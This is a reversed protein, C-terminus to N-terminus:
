ACHLEPDLGSEEARRQLHEAHKLVFNQVVKIGDGALDEDGRAWPSCNQHGGSLHRIGSTAVTEKRTNSLLRLLQLPSRTTSAAVGEMKGFVWHELGRLAMARCLAGLMATDCMKDGRHPVPCASGAMLSEMAAKTRTCLVKLVERRAESVHEVEFDACTANAQWLLCCVWFIGAGSISMQTSTSLSSVQSVSNAM